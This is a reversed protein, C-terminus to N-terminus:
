TLSHSLILMAKMEQGTGVYSNSIAPRYPDGIKVVDTTVSGSVTLVAGFEEPGRTKPKSGSQRSLSSLSYLEFWCLIGVLNAIGGNDKEWFLLENDILV